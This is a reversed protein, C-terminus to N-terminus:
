GPGPPAPPPPTCGAYWSQVALRSHARDVQIEVPQVPGAFEARYAGPGSGAVVTM